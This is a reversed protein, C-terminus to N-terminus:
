AEPPPAVVVTVPREALADLKENTVASVAARDATNAEVAAKVDASAAAAVVTAETNKEVAPALTEAIANASTSTAETNVRVAEILGVPQEPTNGQLAEILLRAKDILEGLGDLAPKAVKWYFGAAAGTLAILAVSWATLSEPTINLGGVNM